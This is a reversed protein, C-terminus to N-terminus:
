LISMTRKIGCPALGDCLEDLDNIHRLRKAEILRCQCANQEIGSAAVLPIINSARQNTLMVDVKLQQFARFTWHACSVCANTLIISMGPDSFEQIALYLTPQKCMPRHKM